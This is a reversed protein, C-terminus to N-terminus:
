LRNISTTTRPDNYISLRSRGRLDDTVAGGLTEGIGEGEEALNGCVCLM